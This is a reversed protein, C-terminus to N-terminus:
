VISKLEETIKRVDHLLHLEPQSQPRVHKIYKYAEDFSMKNILAYASTTVCVSRSIGARCAILIKDNNLLALYTIFIVKRIKSLGNEGDVIPIHLCTPTCNFCLKPPIEQGLYVLVDFSNDNSVSLTDQMDGIYLHETIQQM